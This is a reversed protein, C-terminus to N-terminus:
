TFKSVALIPRQSNGGQIQQEIQDALQMIRDATVEEEPLEYLAKEFYSVALMGRLQLVAFPHASLIEEELLAFPIPEDNENRAYVARWAADDVLSDLFM